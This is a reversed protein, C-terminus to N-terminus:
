SKTPVVKRVRSWFASHKDFYVRFRPLSYTPINYFHTPLLLDGAEVIGIKKENAGWQQCLRSLVAGGGAGSGVILVDYETQEMKELPTLPIWENRYDMQRPSSPLPERQRATVPLPPLIIPWSSIIADPDAAHPNLSILEDLKVNQMRVISRLTEGNNGIYFRM